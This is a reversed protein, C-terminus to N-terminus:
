NSRVLKSLEMAAKAPGIDTLDAEWKASIVGPTMIPQPVDEADYFNMTEMLMEFDYTLTECLEEDQLVFKGFIEDLHKTSVPGIKLKIDDYLDFVSMGGPVIQTLMSAIQVRVGKPAPLQSSSFRHSRRVSTATKIELRESNFNFDFREMKDLHWSQILRDANESGKILALEGFFGTVEHESLRSRRNFLAIFESILKAVDTSTHASIANDVIVDLFVEAARTLDRFLLLSAVIKKSSGGSVAVVEREAVPIAQVFESAFPTEVAGVPLLILFPFNGAKTIGVGISPSSKLERYRTSSNGLDLYERSYLMRLEDSARKM